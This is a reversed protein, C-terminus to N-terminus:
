WFLVTFITIWSFYQFSAHIGLVSNTVKVAIVVNRWSSGKCIFSSCIFSHLILELLTVVSGLTSPVINVMPKSQSFLTNKFFRKYACEFKGSVTLVSRTWLWTGTMVIGNGSRPPPKASRQKCLTLLEWGFAWLSALYIQFKFLSTLIAQSLPSLISAQCSVTKGDRLGKIKLYKLM